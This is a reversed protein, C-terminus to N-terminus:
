LQEAPRLQRRAGVPEDADGLHIAARVAAPDGAGPQHGRDEGGRLRLQDGGSAHLGKALSM